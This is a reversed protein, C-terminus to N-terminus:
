SDLGRTLDPDRGAAIEAEWQDILPDGTKVAEGWSAPLKLHRPPGWRSSSLESAPAQRDDLKRDIGVLFAPLEIPRFDEYKLPPTGTRKYWLYRLAWEPDELMWDAQREMTQAGFGPRM